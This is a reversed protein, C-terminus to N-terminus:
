DDHDHQRQSRHVETVPDPMYSYTKAIVRSALNPNALAKRAGDLGVLTDTALWV